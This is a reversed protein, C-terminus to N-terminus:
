KNAQKAPQGPKDTAGTFVKEILKELKVFCKTNQETQKAMKAINQGMVDNQWAAGVGSGKGKDRGKVPYLHRMEWYRQERSESTHGPARYRTAAGGGLSPQLGLSRLYRPSFYTLASLESNCYVCLYVIVIM